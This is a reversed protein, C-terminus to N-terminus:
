EKQISEINTGGFIKGNLIFVFLVAILIILSISMLAITFTKHHNQKLSRIREKLKKILQSEGDNKHTGDEGNMTNRDFENLYLKEREIFPEGCNPCFKQGPKQEFGCKKCFM